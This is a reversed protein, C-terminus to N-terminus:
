TTRSTASAHARAHLGGAPGEEPVPELGRLGPRAPRGPQRPHGPHHLHRGAEQLSRLAKELERECDERRAPGAPRPRTSTPSASTAPRRPPWSSTRCRTCRSRTASSRSSSRRRRLGPARDHHAGPTGKPGRLRKVADDITMGRADEDEIRSIVDGARIGLRHAPTGEFPSVVTINGDMPRCPSASATTPAASGSRSRALVGEDGPLELAPRAHAADRPHLVLRAQREEGRGRLEGRGRGPDGHLPAPPRLAQQGRGPRPRRPARRGPDFRVLLAVSLAGLRTLKMSPVGGANRHYCVERSLGRGRGAAARAAPAGSSSSCPWSSAAMVILVAAWRTARVLRRVARLWSWRRTATSAGMIAWFAYRLGRAVFLTVALRRGSFGFVGASLVFIKFPM